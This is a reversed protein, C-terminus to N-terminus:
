LKVSLLMKEHSFVPAIFNGVEKPLIMFIVSATFSEILVEALAVRDSFALCMVADSIMFAIVCAFKGVTSFLGAMLGGFAYGGCIFGQNRSAISFIAGTAIGCVSGGAVGGYRACLLTVLVALIRGVSIGEIAVSGFSLMLVCGTLVLSATEQQSFTAISRRETSLRVTSSFFYAATGALVAEIICDTLSSLTSTSVFTLVIGTALIPLFAVLPAFLASNKVRKIDSTLWRIGGIAVVVAIYRFSDSPTLLIYGLGTGALASLLYKKPVAAAFSAGFPSLNGLMAGKSVLVGSVFYVINTIVTRAFEASGDFNKRVLAKKAEM